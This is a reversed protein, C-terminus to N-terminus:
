YEDNDYKIYEKLQRQTLIMSLSEKRTGYIGNDQEQVLLFFDESIKSFTNKDKLEKLSQCLLDFVDSKYNSFDEGSVTSKILRDFIEFLEIERSDYRFAEEDVEIKWEPISWKDNDIPFKSDPNEENYKKGDQKIIEMGEKTNYGFFFNSIDSDTFIGFSCIENEKDYILKVYDKSLSKFLEKIKQATKIPIFKLNNKVMQSKKKKKPVVIVHSNYDFYNEFPTTIFLPKEYESIQYEKSPAGSWNCEKLQDFRTIWTHIGQESFGWTFEHQVLLDNILSDEKGIIFVEELPINPQKWVPYSKDRKFSKLCHQYESSNTNLFLYAKWDFYKVLIFGISWGAIERSKWINRHIKELSDLQELSLGAKLGEYAYLTCHLSDPKTNKLKTLYESYQSTSDDIMTQEARERWVTGYYKSISKEINKFHENEIEAIKNIANVSNFNLYENESKSYATHNKIPVISSEENTKNSESTCSFIAIILLFLFIKM